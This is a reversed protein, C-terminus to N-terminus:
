CNHEVICLLAKISQTYEPANIPKYLHASATRGSPTPKSWQNVADKDTVWDEDLLIVLANRIAPDLNMRELFEHGTMNPMRLDCLILHPKTDRAIHLGEAGNSTYVASIGEADLAAILDAVEAYVDDIILVKPPAADDRSM